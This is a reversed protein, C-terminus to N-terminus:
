PKLQKNSMNRSKLLIQQEESFGGSVPRGWVGQRVGEVESPLLLRPPPPARNREEEETWRRLLSLSAWTVHSCPLPSVAVILWKRDVDFFFSGWVSVVVTIKMRLVAM